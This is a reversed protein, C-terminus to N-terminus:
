TITETSFNLTKDGSFKNGLLCFSLQLYSKETESQNVSYTLVGTEDVMLSENSQYRTISYHISGPLHQEKKFSIDPLSNINSKFVSKLIDPYSTM